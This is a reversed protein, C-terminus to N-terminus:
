ESVKFHLVEKEMTKAAYNLKETASNFEKISDSTQLTSENLQVMSESIQRAGESQSRIGDNVEKFRPTLAQVQSIIKELQQSVKAANQVGTKVEDTFKDMEMVGSSVASQMDKVMSEIDLTSVATQDALRRIERAVVSFGLGYEGAKEAEIAANLSLLNTQDAVKTITTIVNNINDAKERITSLKTSISGTADMVIQITSELEHLDKKGEGALTETDSAVETVENMTNVFSESSASIEKSTAVVQNTASAQEAVTAELQRASVAIKTTSETVQSGSLQVQTALAFLSQTMTKVSDLLQVVENADEIINQEDTEEEPEAASEKEDDVSNSEIEEVPETENKKDIENLAAMENIRERAEFLNGLAIEKTVSVLQIIPNALKGSLYFLFILAVISLILGIFVLKRMLASAQAKIKEGPIIVNVSWPTEISGFKIPVFVHLKDDIFEIFEEGKQIRKLKAGDEFDTRISTANMGIFDPDDTSAALTGNNTILEMKGTGDYINLEGALKQLFDLNIDVGAIGLFKGDIIIPVALTTMFVDEDQVPYIYPDIACEKLTRKPIQYYDGVGEEEYDVLPELKINNESNRSIYPLFRGTEDHGEKNVYKNDIGDFADPEWLTSVGVFQPHNILIRRQISMAEDRTLALPYEKDKSASLLLALMRASDLAFEIEKTVHMANKRAVIVAHEEAAKLANDQVMLASYMIIIGATVLLCLGSWMAIKMRISRLKM